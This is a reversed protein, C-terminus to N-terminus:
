NRIKKSINRRKRRLSLNKKNMIIEALHTQFFNRKLVIKKIESFNFENFEFSSNIQIFFVRLYKRQNAKLQYNMKNKKM